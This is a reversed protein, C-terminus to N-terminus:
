RTSGPADVQESAPTLHEPRNHVGEGMVPDHLRQTVCVQMMPDFEHDQTILLV